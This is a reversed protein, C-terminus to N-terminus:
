FKGFKLALVASPGSLDDNTSMASKLGSIYRYSIGASIRFFHTVNLNTQVCPELIFFSDMKHSDNFFRGKEDQYGIGGGGILLGISFHLLNDSSVIYELDLGGYGMQIYQSASDTSKANVNTVLGYGAGGLVFTHNIIWGGRGGVLVASEGNIKTIKIVPGGFGGSEINGSILTQEQAYAYFTLLLISGVVVSKRM